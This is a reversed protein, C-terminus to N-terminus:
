DKIKLKEVPIKGEVGGPPVWTMNIIAGGGADFYKIMIKHKGPELAVMGAVPKTAHNGGNDIVLIDDIYLWSGDDSTLKFTYIGPTNIEIYGKWMASFPSPIPKEEENFWNFEIDENIEEYVSEGEWNTNGYYSGSLGYREDILNQKNGVMPAFPQRDKRKTLDYIRYNETTIICPYNTDFFKKNVGIRKEYPGVTVYFPKYTNILAIADSKGKLMTQIDQERRHADNYGHSWIHSPYGMLSKRGSLFVPHNFIPANLFIADPPTEISIRKALKVEEASFEKWGSIPAVAYRFVDIGGAVTLVFMIIFFGIRSPIRFRKNKYLCTLALAAMPTTGLFWYILIKINDWNWPAFLVMNPLLFLIMFPLSYFGLHTPARHDTGKRFIFITTFGAIILPWFLGTNKLWFWFYNEKGATWGFSPKFFSGGGVHGSLYLVQPLSLIFAPMFFLIWKRWDWFIIGLPITVMLMALFSHSHFFPLAGALVGAFLFERWKKHEIGTYLLTFILMTIPFGFLFPRQPINLCTLPTIWHYNLSPIKTYDRPLNMLFSWINGSTHSLDQLFYYFGFGGTFFFIFASIVATFRRKTLRYAFYYFISYFAVTLLLGPIFLIDRFDLGLKLFIASLFDSLFPYALKEGAFSPDQPPINNGWVFSTIYALHLPLDGYNNPLGIYMGDKKWIITRYFLRWFITTFFSFVAIHVYYSITNLLFDNKIDRIESLISEKFSTWKIILIVSCLAILLIASIYLSKIQLGWMLSFLYVIWTYLGLGIVTGYAIREFISYRASLFYTLLFGTIISIIIFLVVFTM